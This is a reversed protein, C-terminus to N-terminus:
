DFLEDSIERLRKTAQGKDRNGFIYSVVAVGDTGTDKVKYISNPDIGGIVLMPISIADAIKEVMELSVLEAGPKTATEFVPGVGLYDAGDKEAEIAQEVTQVSVGLIKDPGIKERVKRAKMDSQGVHVGDADVELAVEVNDDIVFPIDYKDVVPKLEKGLRVYEDYDVHKERLQLFTAGSKLVEECEEALSREKLFDRTTVVYVKM